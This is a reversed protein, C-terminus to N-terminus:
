STSLLNNKLEPMCFADTIIHNVGNVRIRISGKGAVELRTDNGLKVVQKYGEDLYSFWSKTGCMHNSCGSDLYWTGKHKRDGPETIAM